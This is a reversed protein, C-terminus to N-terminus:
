DFSHKKVDNPLPVLKVFGNKEKTINSPTGISTSVNSVSKNLIHGLYEKKHPVIQKPDLCLKEHIEFNKLKKKGNKEIMESKIGSMVWGFANLIPKTEGSYKDYLNNPDIRKVKGDVVFNNPSLEALEEPLQFSEVNEIQFEDEKFRNPRNKLYQNENRLRENEKLLKKILDDAQPDTKYVVNKDKNLLNLPHNPDSLDKINNIEGLINILFDNLDPLTFKNLDLEKKNDFLVNFFKNLFPFILDLYDLSLQIQDYFLRNDELLETNLKDLRDKDKNEDNILKLQDELLKIKKNQAEIKELLIENSHFCEKTHIVEVNEIQNQNYCNNNHVIDVKSDDLYKYGYDKEDPFYINQNLDLNQNKITNLYREINNEATMVKPIKNNRINIQTNFNNKINNDKTEFYATELISKEDNKDYNNNSRFVDNVNDSYDYNLYEDKNIYAM